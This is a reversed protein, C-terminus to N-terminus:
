FTLGANRAADALEKVKGAYLFGGRDFVVHTINEDAAKAAIAEGVAKAQERGSMKPVAGISSVGAIVRNNADDVLQAYMYANSKYVALRPCEPTGKIRARIRAHRRNRQQTKTSTTM